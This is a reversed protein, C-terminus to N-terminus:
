PRFHNGLVMAWERFATQIFSESYIGKRAAADVHKHVASSSIVSPSDMKGRIADDRFFPAIANHSM